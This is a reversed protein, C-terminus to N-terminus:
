SFCPTHRPCCPQRVEIDVSNSQAVELMTEGVNATVVREKGNAERFTVSITERGATLRRLHGRIFAM